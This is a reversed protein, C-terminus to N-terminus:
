HQQENLHHNLPEDLLTLIDGVSQLYFLPVQKQKIPDQTTTLQRAEQLTTAGSLVLLTWMGCENGLLIDTHLTDGIILTKEPQVGYRAQLMYFMNLSPKGM